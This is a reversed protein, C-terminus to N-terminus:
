ESVHERCSHSFYSLGLHPRSSGFILGSSFSFIDECSWFLCFTCRQALRLTLLRRAICEIFVELPLRRQSFGDIGKRGYECRLRAVCGKCTLFFVSTHPASSVVGEPFGAVFDVEMSESFSVLGLSAALAAPCPSVIAVSLSPSGLLVLSVSGPSSDGATGRM